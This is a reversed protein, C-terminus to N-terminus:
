VDKLIVRGSWTEGKKKLQEIVFAPPISSPFCQDSLDKVEGDQNRCMWGLEKLAQHLTNRKICSDFFFSIAERINDMAEKSTNGCSSLDLMRCYAVWKDSEEFLFGSVTTELIYGDEASGGISLLGSDQM